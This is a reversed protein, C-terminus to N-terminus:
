FEIGQQAIIGTNFPHKVEKIESVLNSVEIIEDIANRGTIILHMWPPRQKLVEIIEAVDLWKKDLAINLEDLILLDVKGNIIYDSALQWADTACKVHEAETIKRNWTFGAGMTIIEFPLDLSDALQKEGTDTSSSKIFQIATVKWGWGLARLATGFASTTKGKGNGTINILLGHRKDKATKNLM